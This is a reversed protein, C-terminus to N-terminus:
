RFRELLSPRESRLWSRHLSWTCSAAIKRLSMGDAQMRHVKHVDVHVRPRGLVKGERRAQRLGAKTRENIRLREQKALTALLALVVDRFPGISDLYSEQYSRWNVGYGSLKELHQLTALTGERTFRDLAWFLVVDFRRKAADQFLLQFHPRDSTSGTMRDIYEHQVIWGSRFCFDRLEGLQNEVDMKKDVRSVRAYLAVRM